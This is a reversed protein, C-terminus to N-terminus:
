RLLAESSDSPVPLVLLRALMRTLKAADRDGVTDSFEKITSETVRNWDALAAAGRASVLVLVKRRDNADARRLVLNSSVLKDIIKTLTPAPTGVHDAIASMPSGATDAVFNLIQWQDVTSGYQALADELRRTLEREARMLLRFFGISGSTGDLSSAAM